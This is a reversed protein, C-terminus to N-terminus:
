IQYDEPRDQDGGSPAASDGAKEQKRDYFIRVDAKRGTAQLLHSAVIFGQVSTVLFGALALVTGALLAIAM